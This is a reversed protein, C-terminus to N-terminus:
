KIIDKSTIKIKWERVLRGEFASKLISKKLMEAKKL